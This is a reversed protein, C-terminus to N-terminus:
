PCWLVTMYKLHIQDGETKQISISNFCRHRDSQLFNEPEELFATEFDSPLVTSM